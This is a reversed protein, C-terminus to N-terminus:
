EVADRMLDRATGPHSGWTARLLTFVAQQNLGDLSVGGEDLWTILAKLADRGKGSKQLQAVARTLDAPVDPHTMM